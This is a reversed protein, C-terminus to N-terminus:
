WAPEQVEAVGEPVRELRRASVPVQSVALGDRPSDGSRERDRRLAGAEGGIVCLSDARHERSESRKRLRDPHPLNELGEQRTVLLRGGAAQGADEELRETPGADFLRNGHAVPERCRFACRDGSVARVSHLLSAGVDLAVFTPCIIFCTKFVCGARRRRRRKTSKDPASIRADRTGSRTESAARMRRLRRVSSTSSSFYRVRDEEARASRM